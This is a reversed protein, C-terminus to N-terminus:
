RPSEKPPQTPSWVATDQDNRVLDVERDADRAPSDDADQLLVERAHEPRSRGGLEQAIQQELELQRRVPAAEMLARQGATLHTSM